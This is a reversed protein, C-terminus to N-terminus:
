KDGGQEDVIHSVRPKRNQERYRAMGEEYVSRCFDLIRDDVGDCENPFYNIWMETKDKVGHFEMEIKVLARHDGM